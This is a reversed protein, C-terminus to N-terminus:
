RFRSAPQGAIELQVDLLAQLRENYLVLTLDWPGDSGHRAIRDGSIELNVRYSGAPTRRRMGAYGITSGHKALRAGVAWGTEARVTVPVELELHDFVGDGDGDAHRIETGEDIAMELEGFERHNYAQTEVAARSLRYDNGHTLAYFRYPGDEGSQFIEQGSLYLTATRPGPAGSVLATTPQSAWYSPQHAVVTLGDPMRHGSGQGNEKALLGHILYSGPVVIEVGVEAVLYEYIGDSDVDSPKITVDGTFRLFESVQVMALEFTEPLTDYFAWTGYQSGLSYLTYDSDLFTVLKDKSHKKSLAIPEDPSRYIGQFTSDYFLDDRGRLSHSSFFYPFCNEDDDICGVSAPFKPDLSATRHTLFGAGAAGTIAVYRLGGVGMVGSIAQLVDSYVYCDGFNCPSSEAVLGQWYCKCKSTCKPRLSPDTITYEVTRTGAGNTSIPFSYEGDNEGQYAYGYFWNHEGYHYLGKLIAELVDQESAAATLGGGWCTAKSYWDPEPPSFVALPEAYTVYFDGAVPPVSPLGGATCTLTLKYSGTETMAPLSIEGTHGTWSATGAQESGQVPLCSPHDATFPDLTWSCDVRLEGDPPAPAPLDPLPPDPRASLPSDCESITVGLTVPQSLNGAFARIPPRETPYCDDDLEPAYIAGGEVGRVPSGGSTVRVSSVAHPQPPLVAVIKALNEEIEVPITQAGAVGAPPLLCLCGWLVLHRSM